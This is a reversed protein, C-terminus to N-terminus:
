TQLYTQVPLVHMQAGLLHVNMRDQMQVRHGASYFRPM